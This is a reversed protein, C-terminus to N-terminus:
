SSGPADNGEKKKEQWTYRSDAADRRVAQRTACSRRAPKPSSYSLRDAWKSDKRVTWMRSRASAARRAVTLRVTAGMFTWELLTASIPQDPM